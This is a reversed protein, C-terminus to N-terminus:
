RILSFEKGQARTNKIYQDLINANTQSVAHLLIVNGPKNNDLLKSLAESENPQANTDWDKYAFGWLVTKYGLDKAISMSTENFKGEPPRFLKVQPKAGFISVYDKEWDSLDKKIQSPSSENHNLHRSTHNGVIHGENVMRKVFPLARKMYDSTVFFVAKVNNAKLTDLINGTLGNFEYGNDFTMYINNSSLRSVGGFKNLSTLAKGPTLWSWSFKENNTVKVNSNDTTTEEEQPKNEEPKNEETTEPTGAKEIVNLGILAPNIWGGPSGNSRTINVMGNFIKFIYYEGPQYTSLPNKGVKADDANNYVSIVAPITITDGVQLEKTELDRPKEPEDGKQDDENPPMQEVESNDEVTETPEKEETEANNATNDETETANDTNNENDSGASINTEQDPNIVTTEKEKSFLSCASFLLTLALVLALVKIKNKKM